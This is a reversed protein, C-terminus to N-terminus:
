EPRVDRVVADVDKRSRKELAKIRDEIQQHGSSVGLQTSASQTQDPLWNAVKAILDLQKTSLNQGHELNAVLVGVFDPMAQQIRIRSLYEIYRLFLPDKNWNRIQRDTIPPDLMEGIEAQTLKQVPEKSNKTTRRDVANQVIIEACQRQRETLGEFGNM